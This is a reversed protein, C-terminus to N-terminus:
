QLLLKISATSSVRATVRAMSVFTDVTSTIESTQLNVRCSHCARVKYFPIFRRILSFICPFKCSTVEYSFGLFAYEDSPNCWWGDTSAPVDSPMNFGLAPFCPTNTDMPVQCSRRSVRKSPSSRGPHPDSLSASVLHLLLVFLLLGSATPAMTSLVLTSQSPLSSSRGHFFERRPPSEGIQGFCRCLM